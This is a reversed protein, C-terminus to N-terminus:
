NCYGIMDTAIFCNVYQIGFPLINGLSIMTTKTELYWHSQSQMCARHIIEFCWYNKFCTLTYEWIYKAVTVIKM